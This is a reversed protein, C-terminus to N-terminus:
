AHLPSYKKIFENMSLPRSYYYGQLLDCGISRMMEAMEEDEIGEAAIGFGMHKFALIM